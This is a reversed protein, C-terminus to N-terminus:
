QKAELTNAFEIIRRKSIKEFARTLDRKYLRKVSEIQPYKAIVEQEGRELKLATIQRKFVTATVLVPVERRYRNMVVFDMAISKDLTWCLGYMSAFDCGRYVTIRKPLKELAALESDDMLPKVNGDPILQKLENLYQTVNDFRTWHKRLLALWDSQHMKAHLDLAVPLANYSCARWMQEDADNLNLTSM